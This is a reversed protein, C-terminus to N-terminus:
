RKRSASKASGKKKASEAPPVLQLERQGDKSLLVNGNKITCGTAKLERYAAESIRTCTNFDIEGSKMDKVNAILHGVERPTPSFHSGDTIRRTVQHLQAQPYSPADSM